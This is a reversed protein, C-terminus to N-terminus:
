RSINLIFKRCRTNSRFRRMRLATGMEYVKWRSFPTPKLLTAISPTVENRTAQDFVTGPHCDGCSESYCLVVRKSAYIHALYNEYFQQLAVKKLYWKPTTGDSPTDYKVLTWIGCFPKQGHKKESPIDWIPHGVTFDMDENLLNVWFGKGKPLITNYLNAKYFDSSRVLYMLM